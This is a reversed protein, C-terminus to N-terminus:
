SLARRAGLVLLNRPSVKRECFQVLTSDYGHEEIFLCADLVLWLELPRRYAHRALELRSIRRSRALGLALCTAAERDDWKQLYPLLRSREARSQGKAEAAWRCFDAFSGQSLLAVPVSPVRLRTADATAPRTPGRPPLARSFLVDFACRWHHERRRIRLDRQGGTVCEGATALKMEAHSIGEAVLCSGAAAASLTELQDASAHKHYCCPAVAVGEAKRDMAARLMARHLGGCAHLAVHTAASGAPLLSTLSPALVDAQVFSVPLESCLRRGVDCLHGDVELCTSSPVVGHALLRKSLYGKGSCWEVAPVRRRPVASAFAEVQAWKKGPVGVHARGAPVPPRAIRLMADAAAASVRQTAEDLPAFSPEHASMWKRLWVDDHQLEEYEDDRLQLLAHHLSRHTTRWPVVPEHFPKPRWLGTGAALGADLASFAALHDPRMRRYSEIESASDERLTQSTCYREVAAGEDPPDERESAPPRPPIRAPTALACKPGSPM